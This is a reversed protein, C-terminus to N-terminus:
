SEIAICEILHKSVRSVFSFSLNFQPTVAARLFESAVPQNALLSNLALDIWTFEFRSVSILSCQQIAELRSHACNAGGTWLREAVNSEKKETTVCDVCRIYTAMRSLDASEEEKDSVLESIGSPRDAAVPIRHTAAVPYWRLM